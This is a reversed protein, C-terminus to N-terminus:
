MAAWHAPAVERLPAERNFTGSESVVSARTATPDVAPMTALLAKTYPHHPSGFLESAPAVEVLRGLSMVAIRDCVHRVLRLDHTILLYTLTLRKQLEMLLNSAQAQISADLASVPEDTIIFSSNLALARALAERRSCRSHVRFAEAIQDGVTFVPNLTTTPEQVLLAIKAGRVRRMEQESLRLLDRGGLAVSGRVIRGPRQVLRLISLATM